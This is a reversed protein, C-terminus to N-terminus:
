QAVGPNRYLDRTRQEKEERKQKREEPTLIEYARKITVHLLKPSGAPDSADPDAYDLNVNVPVRTNLHEKARYRYGHIRQQPVPLPGIDNDKREGTERDVWYDALDLRKELLSRSVDVLSGTFLIEFATPVVPVKMRDKSYDLPDASTTFRVMAPPLAEVELSWSAGPNAPSRRTDRVIGFMGSNLDLSKNDRLVEMAEQLLTLIAERQAKTVNEHM